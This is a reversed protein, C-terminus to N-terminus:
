QKAACDEHGCVCAERSQAQSTASSAAKRCHDSCYQEGQPVSCTCGDNRCSEQAHDIQM